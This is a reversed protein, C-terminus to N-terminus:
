RWVEVAKQLVPVLKLLAVVAAQATGESGAQIALKAAHVGALLRLVAVHAKDCRVLAPCTKDKAKICAEGAAAIEAHSCPGTRLFTHAGRVGAEVGLVTKTTTSQWGACGSGTSVLAILGLVAITTLLVGLWAQREEQNM